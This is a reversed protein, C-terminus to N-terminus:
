SARCIMPKLRRRCRRTMNWPLPRRATHGMPPTDMDRIRQDPPIQVTFRLLLPRRWLGDTKDRFEPMNSVVGNVATVCKDCCLHVGSVKLTSVKGDKAGTHAMVKIAADSSKGYYGAAVLADVAKQAAATDPATLVVTGADKDSKATVGTVGTLAKDVGKVCNACCLHVESLKVETAQTSLVVAAFVSALTLIKKM